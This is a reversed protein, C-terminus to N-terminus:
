ALQFLIHIYTVHDTPQGDKRAPKFRIQGAVLRAEEDLGHGLGNVIRLVEVRGDVGFCVQLTVEGQVRLLRAEETYRPRPESLVEPPSFHPEQITAPIPAISGSIGTGGFGASAVAGPGTKAAAGAIVGNAFGASAVTGRGAHAAASGQDVGPANDFSGIAAVTPARGANPNPTVGSPDGFGGVKIAPVSRATATGSRNAFLSVKPRPAPAVERPPAPQIEPMAPTNPRVTETKPAEPQLRPREILRETLRVPPMKMRVVHPPRNLFILETNVYRALPSAKHLQAMAFSFLLLGIGANLALSEMFSSLRRGPEPLLGFAESVAVNSTEAEREM